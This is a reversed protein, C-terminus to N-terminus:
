PVAASVDHAGGILPRGGHRLYSGGSRFGGRPRGDSDLAVAACAGDTEVDGCRMPGSAGRKRFLVVHAGDGCTIRAAHANQASAPEIVAVAGPREGLRQVQMAVLFEQDGSADAPRAHLIWEPFYKDGPVPDRSYRNVPEVPFGTTVEPVIRSPLLFRGRLAAEPCEIQFTGGADARIPVIAHLLWDYAAPEGRSAVVDHIVVFGPKLFLIRREFQRLAGRYIEPDSADGVVYGYDASDSWETIRGDAGETCAAQGAGNVLLTNHALTQMSYEKFHPSGYWDYYGGDIALKGGYAHIVFSNQDAHQHGAQYRGSHMAVTVGERGDALSTNFIAVGIHRYHISQPLDVPARPVIGGVPERGGSYWLAYPDRTRLALDRVRSACAPGRTGHNPMGTDAFSVAWANPPACYMPFRATQRLWPHEYLDIGCTARLMDAYEVIFSLGYDWYSIGENNDGQYGLCPLFRGVFLQRVCETWAGAAPHDGLLVIGSEALGLAQLWAHNNAEGHRFPNLRAYFQEARRAIISAVREREGASMAGRSADYCWNLGRLLHHAGIDGRSMASGGEPDWECAKLALERAWGIAEADGTVMAARGLDELRRGTGGTIGGAVKGYWEIWTPWRPDGPVHPGPHEPVGRGFLKKASKLLEGRRPDTLSGEKMRAWELLRPRAKEALAVVPTAGTVFRHAEPPIDVREIDSWGEVLDDSSWVRWYYSAPEIPAAPTHFNVASQATVTKEPLFGPDTSYQLRQACAGRPRPWDFMPPNAYSVRARATLRGQRPVVRLCINDFWVTMKAKTEGRVATKDKVRGYLQIRSIGLGPTVKKGSSSTLDGIPLEVRRWKGSFEDSAWFWQEDGVFFSLGLYAGECGEEIEERHDFALTLNKEVTVPLRLECACSASPVSAWVRLCHGTGDPGGPEVRADARPAELGAYAGLGGGKEFDALYRMASYGACPLSLTLVGVAGVLHWRPDM